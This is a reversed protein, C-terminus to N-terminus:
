KELVSCVGIGFGKEGFVTSRRNVVHGHDAAGHWALANMLDKAEASDACEFVYCSGAPVALQTPKPGTVLDWGSFALPKGIRAAVLKAGFKPMRAMEQRWVERSGRDTKEPKKPLDGRPLMVQGGEADVWTPLWGGPHLKVKKEPNANLAPYVAPSLLTWRVFNGTGGVSRPLGMPTKLRKATVVGQQGGLILPDTENAVQEIVDKKKGHPGVNECSVEVALRADDMLRLYEAQYIDGKGTTGTEPNIGIGIQREVTYLPEAQPKFTEGKLYKGYEATSLWIPMEHKGIKSSAFSCTLPRPLNTGAGDVLTMPHLMGDESVSLDLPCPLYLSDERAPFPGITKLGGFRDRSSNGKEAETKNHRHEWETQMEPWRRNFAHIFASWIQDPRPWNAGQGADSAAMPRADRMFLLDRPQIHFTYTQPM